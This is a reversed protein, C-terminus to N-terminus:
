TTFLALIEPLVLNSKRTIFYARIIVVNTCVKTGLEIDVVNDM